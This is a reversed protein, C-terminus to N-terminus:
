DLSPVVEGGARTGLANFVRFDLNQRLVRVSGDGLVFNVV